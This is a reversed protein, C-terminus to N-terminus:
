SVVFRQRRDRVYCEATLTMTPRYRKDDYVRGDLSHPLPYVVGHGAVNPPGTTMRFYLTCWLAGNLIFEFIKEGSPGQSFTQSGRSFTEGPGVTARSPGSRLRRNVKYSIIVIPFELM